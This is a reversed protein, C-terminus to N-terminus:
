ACLVLKPAFIFLYIFVLGFEVRLLWFVSSPWYFHSFSLSHRLPRSTEQESGTRLFGPAHAENRGSVASGATAASPGPSPQWGGPDRPPPAGRLLPLQIDRHSGAGPQAPLSTLMRRHSKWWGTRGQRPRPAPLPFPCLPHPPSASFPPVRLSQPPDRWPTVRTRGEQVRTDGEGRDRGPHMHARGGCLAGQVPSPDLALLLSDPSFAHQPSASLQEPHRAM